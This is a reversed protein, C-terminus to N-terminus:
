TATRCGCDYWSGPHFHSDDCLCLGPQAALAGPLSLSDHGIWRASTARIEALGEFQDPAYRAGCALVVADGPFILSPRGSSLQVRRHQGIKEVHALVLDGPRAVAFDTDVRM